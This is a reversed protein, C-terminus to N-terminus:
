RDNLLSLIVLYQVPQPALKRGPKWGVLTVSVGVHTSPSLLCVLSSFFIAIATLILRLVVADM